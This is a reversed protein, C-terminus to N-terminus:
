TAACWRPFAHVAAPAAACQRGRSAEAPVAAGRDRRGSQERRRTEDFRGRRGRRRARRARDGLPTVPRARERERPEHRPAPCDGQRVAGDVANLARQEHPASRVRRDTRVPSPEHRDLVRTRGGDTAPTSPVSTDPPLPTRTMSASPVSCWQVLPDISRADGLRSTRPSTTSSSRCAQAPRARAQSGARAPTGHAPERAPAGSCGTRPSPEPPRGLEPPDIRSTGM